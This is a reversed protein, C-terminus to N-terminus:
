FDRYRQDQLDIRNVSGSRSMERDNFDVESTENRKNHTEQITGLGDQGMTEQGLLKKNQIQM